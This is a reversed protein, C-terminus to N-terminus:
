AALSRFTAEGDVSNDELYPITPAGAATYTRICIHFEGIDEEAVIKLHPRLIRVSYRDEQLHAAWSSYRCM